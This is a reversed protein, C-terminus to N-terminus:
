YFTDDHYHTGLITFISKFKNFNNVSFQLDKELCPTSVFYRFMTGDM